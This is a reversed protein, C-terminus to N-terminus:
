FGLLAYNFTYAAAPVTKASSRNCASVKFETESSTGNVTYVLETPWPSTPSIVMFDGAVEVGAITVSKVDCSGTALGPLPWQLTGVQRAIDRVSLGGDVIEGGDISNDAIEPASVGNNRIESQGVANDGVEDTGVSNAALDAATLSNDGVNGTMVSGPALARTTVSNDGLKPATISNDPTSLLTRVASSSLDRTKISHDKLQKSAVTNRKIQSGNILRAAQAPGGLAVFLALLAILMPASPRQLRPRITGM